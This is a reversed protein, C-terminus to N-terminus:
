GAPISLTLSFRSTLDRRSSAGQSEKQKWGERDIESPNSAFDREKTALFIIDAGINVATYAFFLLLKPVGQVYRRQPSRRILWEFTMSCAALRMWLRGKLVAVSNPAYDPQRLRRRTKILEVLADSPRQANSDAPTSTLTRRQYVLHYSLM